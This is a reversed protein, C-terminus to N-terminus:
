GGNGLRTKHQILITALTGVLLWGLTSVALLRIESDGLDILSDGGKKATKVYSRM